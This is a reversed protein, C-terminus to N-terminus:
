ELHTKLLQFIQEGIEDCRTRMKKEVGLLSGLGFNEDACIAVLRGDTEECIRVSLKVPFWKAPAILGGIIRIVWGMGVKGTLETGDQSHSPRCGLSSLVDHASKVCEQFSSKSSLTNSYGFRSM